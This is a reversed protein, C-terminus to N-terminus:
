GFAKTMNFNVNGGGLTKGLASGFGSSFANGFGSNSAQVYNSLANGIGSTFSSIPSAMQAAQGNILSAANFQNTLMQQLNTLDIGTMGQSVNNAQAGELGSIGRVYDGGVPATSSDSGTRLLATRVNRGATNYAQANQNLFQSKLLALQTPDFGVNGSLYKGVAGSVQQQSAKMMDFAQQQLAEQQKLVDQSTGTAKLEGAYEGYITSGGWTLSNLKDVLSM